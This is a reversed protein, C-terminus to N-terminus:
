EATEFIELVWTYTHLGVCVCDCVCELYIKLIKNCKEKIIKNIYMGFRSCKLREVIKEEWKRQVKTKLLGRQM